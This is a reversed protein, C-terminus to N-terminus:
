HNRHAGSFRTKEVAGIRRFELTCIARDRRPHHLSRSLDKKSMDAEGFFLPSRSGAERCVRLTRDALRWPIRGSVQGTNRIQWISFATTESRRLLNCLGLVRRWKGRLYLPTGIPRMFSPYASSQWSRVLGRSVVARPEFYDLTNLLSRRSTAARLPIWEPITKLLKCFTPCKESDVRIFSLEPNKDWRKLRKPPQIGILWESVPQAKHQRGQLNRDRNKLPRLAARRAFDVYPLLFARVPPSDPAPWVLSDVM